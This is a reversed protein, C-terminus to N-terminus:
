LEKRSVLLGIGGLLLPLIWWGLADFLCFATTLIVLGQVVRSSLIMFIIVVILIGILINM